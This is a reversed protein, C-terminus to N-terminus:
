SDILMLILDNVNTGTAGTKILGGVRDFYHYSDSNEIFSDVILGHIELGEHLVLEDTVAGAAGTPGDDGDTAFSMFLVGQKGAIKAVMRLTLDMNRGGLGQGTINVTPEGGFILCAPKEAPRNYMLQTQLIDNLFGSLHDTRGTLHTSIVVAHYGLALAKQCAAEAAIFNTGVLHYDVRGPTLQSPKLTEHIKGQKGANISNLISDPIKEQLGYKNLIDFADHFTTPDAVTPGSAIMDLRDGIVDSLILNEVYAPMLKEALRGGKVKDLHKRLTNIENIDAGCNLLEQTLSQLDDLSVNDIPDTFLASGGGSIVTLVLDKDTLEPLNSVIARTAKISEMTPIPHGGNYIALRDFYGQESLFKADKTIVSAQDIRKGIKDLLAKAMPVAAKGFGILFIREFRDIAVVKKGLVLVQGDYQVHHDVCVYPDVAQTARALIQCAHSGLRKNRKFVRNEFLGPSISSRSDDM